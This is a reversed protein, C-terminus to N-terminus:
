TVGRSGRGGRRPRSAQRSAPRCLPRQSSPWMLSLWGSSRNGVTEWGDAPGHHVLASHGATVVCELTDVSCRIEHRQAWTSSCVLSGRFPLKSDVTAVAVRGLPARVVIVREDAASAEHAFALACGCGSAFLFYAWCFLYPSQMRRHQVEKLATELAAATPRCPRLSRCPSCSWMLEM